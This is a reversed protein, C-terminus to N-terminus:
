GSCEEQLACCTSTKKVYASQIEKVKSSVINEALSIQMTCIDENLNGEFRKFWRNKILEKKRVFITYEMSFMEKLEETYVEQAM